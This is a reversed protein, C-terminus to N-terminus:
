GFSNGVAYFIRDREKEGIAAKRQQEELQMLFERNRQDSERLAEMQREQMELFKNKFNEKVKKAKKGSKRTSSMGKKRKKNGNSDADDDEDEDHVDDDDYDDDHRDGYGNDEKNGEEELEVAEVGKEVVSRDECSNDEEVAVGVERVLDLEVIPRCSLVEDFDEFFPPFDPAAGSKRNNEKAKKYGDKLNSLKKKAQEVTKKPGNKNVNNIIKLWAQRNRSSELETVNDKWEKILSRTEKESWRCNKVEKEKKGKSSDLADEPNLAM